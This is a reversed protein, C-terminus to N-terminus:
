KGCNRCNKIQLQIFLNVTKNQISQNNSLDLIPHYLYFPIVLNVKNHKILIITLEENYLSSSDDCEIYTDILCLTFNFKKQLQM